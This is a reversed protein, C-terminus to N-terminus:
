DSLADAVGVIALVIAFVAALMPWGSFVGLTFALLLMVALALLSALVWWNFGVM